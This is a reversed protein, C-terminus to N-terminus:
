KARRAVACSGAPTSRESTVVTVGVNTGLLEAYLGETLLKVAAKTACYISQGPVPLFGGMSSLNAVHAV